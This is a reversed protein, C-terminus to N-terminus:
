ISHFRPSNYHLQSQVYKQPSNSNKKNSEQERANGVFV